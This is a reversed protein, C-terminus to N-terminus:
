LLSVLTTEPHRNDYFWIIYRGPNDAGLVYIDPACLHFPASMLAEM